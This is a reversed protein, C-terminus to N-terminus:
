RTIGHWRTGSGIPCPSSGSGCRSGRCCQRTACDNSHRTRTPFPKWHALSEPFFAARKRSISWGLRDGVRLAADTLRDRYTQYKPSDSAPRTDFLVRLVERPDLQVGDAASAEAFAQMMGPEWDILTGYCDFTIVDFRPNM